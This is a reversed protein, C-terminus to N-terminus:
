RCVIVESTPCGKLNHLPCILQGNEERMTTGLHPCKKGKCSKGVMSDYWKNYKEAKEPPKIGTTLRKCKRRKIVIQYVYNSWDGAKDFQLIMNTKGDADVNYYDKEGAFRGDIHIHSFDVGFQADKHKEGIVPVFAFTVDNCNKIEACRVNYFKGVVVDTADSVILRRGSVITNSSHRAPREINQKM